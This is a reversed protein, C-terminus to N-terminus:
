DRGERNFVQTPRLRHKESNVMDIEASKALMNNLYTLATRSVDEKGAAAGGIAVAEQLLATFKGSNLLFLFTATQMALKEPDLGGEPFYFHPLVQGDPSLEVTLLTTSSKFEEPAAQAVPEETKKGFLRKLFKM